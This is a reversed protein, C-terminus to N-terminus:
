SPSEENFALHLDNRFRLVSALTDITPAWTPWADSTEPWGDTFMGIASVPVAHACRELLARIGFEGPLRVRDVGAYEKLRHAVARALADSWGNPWELIATLTPQNGRLVDRGAGIARRLEADVREPSVVATFVRAPSPAGWGADIRAISENEWLASAWAVDRHQASSMLWGAILPERWEHGEIARLLAKPEISWASTWTSPPVAALIRALWWAREGIGIPPKTDVGDRVLSADAATPLTVDIRPRHLLGSKGFSLLAKARAVMRAVLASTPLTALLSAARQRVEKRRDDLARELFPEDAPSLGHALAAVFGRREDPNEQAWTKELAARAREPDLMRLQQLAALRAPGTGTEWTEELADPNTGATAFSWDENQGALWTARTGGAGLILPRLRPERRGLDLLEPLADAPARVGRRAALALWEGLLSAHEDNLIRRLLAAAAPPCTPHTDPPCPPPLLDASVAPMWGCRRYASAAAAVRLLAASPDTEARVMASCAVGLSGDAAPVVLPMRDTGLLAVNVAAPWIITQARPSTM